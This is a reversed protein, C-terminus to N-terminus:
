GAVPVSATKMQSIFGSDLLYLIVKIFLSVTVRFMETLDWKEM